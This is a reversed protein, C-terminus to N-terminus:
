LALCIMSDVTLRNAETSNRVARLKEIAALDKGQILDHQADLLVLTANSLGLSEAVRRKEVFLKSARDRPLLSLEQIERILSQTFDREVRQTVLGQWTGYSFGLVTAMVLLLAAVRYRNRSIFKRSRYWFSDPRASIARGALYKKIDASFAEATSYRRSREKALSTMVVLDIDGTISKSNPQWRLPQRGADGVKVANESGKSIRQSPRPPEEERLIRLVEEFASSRLRKGDFPTEGTLLEYLLVGLSYIDSRTDVDLQNFQGQEPSMYELTGVIQGYQTFMTKETLKQSIAKAVGFDIVKPVPKDDYKAVLVNSPKIDRHIVGKQHAHQVAQCVQIFLELRERIPLKNEDCYETIPVGKVLEMVFYPRGAALHEANDDGEGDRLSSISEGTTGADLVKAINPHDMMALAQREAEFRAIVAKSDMGPKIIKLAVRRSVPRTQEAMYVTGMGGEGIQQLIKYRGINEYISQSAADASVTEPLEHNSLLPGAEDDNAVLLLEVRKRLQENAGCVQHLYSALLETDEIGRAIHFIREEDFEISM